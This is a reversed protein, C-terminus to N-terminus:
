VFRPDVYAATESETWTASHYIHYLSTWQQGTKKGQVVMSRAAQAGGGAQVRAMLWLECMILGAKQYGFYHNLSAPATSAWCSGGTLDNDFMQAVVFSGSFDASRIATGGTAQDAGSVTARIEAEQWAFVGGGGGPALQLVRVEDLQGWPSGTWTPTNVYNIRVETDGSYAGTNGTNTAALTFSSNDDSYLLDWTKPFSGNYGTGLKTGAILSFININPSYSGGFDFKIRVPGDNINFGVGNNTGAFTSAAAGWMAGDNLGTLAGSGPSQTATITALPAVNGGAFTELLEIEDIIYGGVGNQTTNIDIAWYRHAGPGAAGGAGFRGSQVM